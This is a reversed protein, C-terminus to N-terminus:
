LFALLAQDLFSCVQVFAALQPYVKAVGIFISLTNKFPFTTMVAHDVGPLRAEKFGDAIFADIYKQKEDDAEPLVVGVCYRLDATREVQQPDDYYLGITALEPAISHAQTFLMGANKYSGRAFKYAIHLNGFPPRQARIEVPAFLGSYVFLGFVSAFFVLLLVILAFILASQTEM